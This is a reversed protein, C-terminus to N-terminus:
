AHERLPRTNYGEPRNGRLFGMLRKAEEDHRRALERNEHHKDPMEQPTLHVGKRWSGDVNHFMPGARGRAESALIRQHRIKEPLSLAEYDADTLRGWPTNDGLDRGREARAAGMLQGSHPFKTADSQRWRRCAARVQELSFDKLDDLYDELFRMHQDPSRPGRPYHTSLADLEDIIESRM